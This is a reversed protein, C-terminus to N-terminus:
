ASRRKRSTAIDIVKALGACVESSAVTSYHQQMTATAHGSIARTVIDAVGASRALDQFTRRMARPSVTYKLGIFEGVEGFPKDLCSGTRYGGNVAPFLLDSERMKKSTLEEEIHSELVAVLEAPMHIRQDRNTKTAAMVEDGLTQSQRVLLIKEKWRVDASPGRRRLPRLSSPRLGTAFGLFTFAYHQPFIMRMAELFPPVDAPALSNPEVETYTRHERTDFPEVGRMPDRLDFDDAIQDAIQRLVALITNATAPSLSGARIKASVKSQWAKVDAPRFQDVFLDGFAPILHSELVWTWKRRGAASRIRGLEVKREFVTAAFVHFQPMHAPGEPALGDRIKAAEIELWLLADKARAMDPLARNIERRRGTRPDRVRIRVHFGGDRRRWVGPLDPSSAIVDRWQDIWTPSSSVRRKARSPAVATGIDDAITAGLDQTTM